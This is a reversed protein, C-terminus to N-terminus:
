GRDESAQEKDILRQCAVVLLRVAEGHLIASGDGVQALVSRPDFEEPAAPSEAETSPTKRLEEVFAGGILSVFTGFLGLGGIMVMATATRGAPTVPVKDGYGVTTITALVFWAADSLRAFAEPQAAHELEFIAVAGLVALTLVAFGIVGFEYRVRHFANGISEMANTYRYLKFLRLIRLARIVRLSRLDVMVGVYFPLVALLDILAMLQFPYFLKRSAIWRAIYEITFLVTVIRESWVFFEPPHAADCFELEAFHIAISYIILALISLELYRHYHTKM